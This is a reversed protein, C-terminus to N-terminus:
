YFIWNWRNLLHRMQVRDHENIHWLTRRSEISKIQVQTVALCQETRPSGSPVVDAMREILWQGNAHKGLRRYMLITM